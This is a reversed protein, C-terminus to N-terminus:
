ELMNLLFHLSNVVTQERVQTRNGMFHCEQWYVEQRYYIGIYVTGVPTRRTGGDPGAVGSVAIAIDAKAHRAAGEAMQCVTQESVAGYVELTEHEVGLEEEKAENAYTVFSRGFVESAGAVNVLRASILGGTCSEATTITLHKEKLVVIVRQELNRGEEVSILPYETRM